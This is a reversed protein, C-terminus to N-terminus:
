KSVGAMRNALWQEIDAESWASAREGIKFPAPFKGAAIDRYVAARSKGTRDLVQPLRLARRPQQTPVQQNM